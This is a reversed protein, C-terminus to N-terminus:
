AREGSSEEGPRRENGAGEADLDSFLDNHPASSFCIM